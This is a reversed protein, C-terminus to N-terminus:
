LEKIRDRWIEEERQNEDRSSAQTIRKLRDKANILKFRNNEFKEKSWM